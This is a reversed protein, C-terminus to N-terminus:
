VGFVGIVILLLQEIHIWWGNIICLPMRLSISCDNSTGAINLSWWIIKYVRIEISIVGFFVKLM